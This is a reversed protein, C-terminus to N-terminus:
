DGKLERYVQLKSKCTCTYQLTTEFQGCERENIAERILKVALDKDQPDLDKM